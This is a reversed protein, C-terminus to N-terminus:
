GSYYWLSLLNSIDCFQQASNNRQKSNDGITSINIV